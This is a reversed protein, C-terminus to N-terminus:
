RRVIVGILMRLILLLSLVIGTFYFFSGGPFDSWRKGPLPSMGILKATSTPRHCSGNERSIGSGACTSEIRKNNTTSDEKSSTIVSHQTHCDPCTPVRSVGIGALRGHLDTYYTQVRELDLGYRAAIQKDLHCLTCQATKEQSNVARDFSSPNKPHCFLCNMRNKSNQGHASSMFSWYLSEHSYQKGSVAEVAHCDLGCNVKSEKSDHPVAVVDRHCGRCSIDGHSSSNFSESDVFLLLQRNKDTFGFGSLGHCSLCGEQDASLGSRPIAFVLIVTLFTIFTKRIM